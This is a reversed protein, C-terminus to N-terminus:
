CTRESSKRGKDEDDCVINIAEDIAKYVIYIKM